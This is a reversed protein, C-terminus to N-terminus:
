ENAAACRSEGPGPEPEGEAAATKLVPLTHRDPDYILDAPRKSVRVPGLDLAHLMKKFSGTGFWRGKAVHEGFEKKIAAALVELKLPAPSASVAKLIFQLLHREIGPPIGSGNEGAAEEPRGNTGARRVVRTPPDEIVALDDRQAVVAETLQNLSHFGLWDDSQWFESFHKFIDPLHKKLIGEPAVAQDYVRDAMRRLLQKKEATLDLLLAAAGNAHEGYDRGLGEEVFEKISFLADCASRYAAAIDGAALVATLRDHRRLRSMLPTFDADGSFVVFEDIHVPHQLVDLADIVLHIDTSTKGQQTLPPCDIVEFGARVFYSRYKAFSDPNMFCRRFLIRRRRAAPNLPPYTAKQELWALWRAPSQGFARATEESKLNLNLFINDFDVFLATRIMAGACEAGPGAAGEATGNKNGNFFCDNRHSEAM